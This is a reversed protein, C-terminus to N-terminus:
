NENKVERSSIQRFINELSDPNDYFCFCTGDEAVRRGIMDMKHPKLVFDKTFAEIESEQFFGDQNGDTAEIAEVSQTGYPSNIRNYIGAVKVGDENYGACAEYGNYIGIQINDRSLPKGFLYLSLLSAGIGIAWKSPKLGLFKRM